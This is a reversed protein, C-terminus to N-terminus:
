QSLLKKFEVERRSDFDEDNIISSHIIRNEALHGSTSQFRSIMSITLNLLWDPTKAFVQKFSFSSIEIVETAPTLSIASYTYSLDQIMAAEGIIDGKKALFIPILRDKSSKLCIVEGEKVLYLKNATEGEKFLVTNLGVIKSNEM